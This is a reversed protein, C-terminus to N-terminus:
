RGVGAGGLVAAALGPTARGADPAGTVRLRDVYYLQAIAYPAGDFRGDPAVVLWPEDGQWDDPTKFVYRRFLVEARTTSWVSTSGNGGTTVALRGDSSLVVDAVTEPDGTLGNARASWTSAPNDILHVRGDDTAAALLTGNASISLSVIAENGVTLTDKATATAIDYRILRGSRDGVILYRGDRTFAAELRLFQVTALTDLRRRELDYSLIMEKGSHVLHRATPSFLMTGASSEPTEFSALHQRTPVDWIMVSDDQGLRTGARMAVFRGDDSIAGTPIAGLEGVRVSALTDGTAVRVVSWADDEAFRARTILALRDDPTRAITRRLWARPSPVPSGSALQWAVVDRDLVTTNDASFRPKSAHVTADDFRRIPYGTQADWLRLGEFHADIATRGDSSLEAWTADYDEDKFTCLLAGSTVSWLRAGGDGHVVTVSDGGASLQVVEIDRAPGFISRTAIRDAKEEVSLPRGISRIRGGMADVVIVSDGDAIAVRGARAVSVLGVFKDRDVARYEHQQTYVKRRTGDRLDMLQVNGSDSAAVVWRSDPSVALSRLPRTDTFISRPSAGPAFSAHVVGQPTGAVVGSLDPLLVLRRVRGIGLRERTQGTVLDTLIVGNDDHFALLRLDPSLGFSGLRLSANEYRLLQRGSRVDWVIISADEGFSALRAGDTSLRAYTVGDSHGTPVVLRPQAILALPLALATAVSLLAVRM